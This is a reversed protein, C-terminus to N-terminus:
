ETRGESDSTVEHPGTNDTEVIDCEYRALITTRFWRYDDFAEGTYPREAIVTLPEPTNETSRMIGLYADRELIRM